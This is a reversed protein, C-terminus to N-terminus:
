IFGLKSIEAQLQAIDQYEDNMVGEILAEMLLQKETTKEVEEQNNHLLSPYAWGQKRKFDRRLDPCILHNPDLFLPMIVNDYTVCIVRQGNTSSFEYYQNEFEDIAGEPMKYGHRLINDILKVPKEKNLLNWHMRDKLGKDKDLDKRKHGSLLKMVYILDKIQSVAAAHNECYNHFNGYRICGCNFLKFDFSIRLENYVTEDLHSVILTKEKNLVPNPIRSRAPM